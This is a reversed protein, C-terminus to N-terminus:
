LIRECSYSGGNLEEVVHSSLTMCKTQHKKQKKVPITLFCNM